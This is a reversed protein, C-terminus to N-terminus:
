GELLITGNWANPNGPPQLKRNAQWLIANEEELAALHSTRIQLDALEGILASKENRLDWVRKDWTAELDSRLHERMEREREEYYACLLGVSTLIAAFSKIPDFWIHAVVALGAFLVSCFLWYPAFSVRYETM